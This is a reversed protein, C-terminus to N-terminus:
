GIRVTFTVTGALTLQKGDELLNPEERELQMGNYVTNNTRSIHRLVWSGYEYTLRCHEGSVTHMNRSLFFDGGFNGYRGLTGGPKQIDIRAHTNVEELWLEDGVPVDTKESVGQVPASQKERSEIQWLFDDIEHEIKCGECFFKRVSGNPLVTKTQSEPCFVFYERDTEPTVAAQAMTPMPQVAPEEPISQKLPEACIECITSGEPNEFGCQPCIIAAM